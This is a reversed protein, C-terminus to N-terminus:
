ITVNNFIISHNERNLNRKEYNDLFNKDAVIKDAEEETFPVIVTDGKADDYIKIINYNAKLYQICSKYVESNKESQSKLKVIVPGAFINIPTITSKSATNSKNESAPAQNVSQLANNKNIISTLPSVVSVHHLPTTTPQTTGVLSAAINFDTIPIQHRSNIQVINQIPSNPKNPIKARTKNETQTRTLNANTSVANKEKKAQKKQRNRLYCILKM